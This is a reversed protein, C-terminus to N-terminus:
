PRPKPWIPLSQVHGNEVNKSSRIQRIASPVRLRKGSEDPYTRAFIAMEAAAIRTSSKATAIGGPGARENPPVTQLFHNVINDNSKAKIGSMQDEGVM